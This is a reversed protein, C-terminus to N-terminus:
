EERKFWTRVHEVLSPRPICDLKEPGHGTISAFRMPLDIEWLVGDFQVKVTADKFWWLLETHGSSGSSLNPPGLIAEVEERTMGMWITGKPTVLRYRHREWALHIGVLILAVSAAVVAWKWNRRSM